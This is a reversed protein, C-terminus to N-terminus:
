KLKEFEIKLLKTVKESHFEKEELKAVKIIETATGTVFIEESRKLHSLKFNGVVLKIKKKKLIKIVIQRTIGNLVSHTKSTYVINNKVWFINCATTEAINNNTDLMLSDDYGKESSVIKEIISAQYSGSSKAKIPFYSNNSKKYKAVCLSIEDKNFLLEWNWIAIFIQSKCSKTDPSMSNSDRFVIPRIYGDKISNIKILKNIIKALENKTLTLKLKMLNCSIILRDLHENLYFPKQSYVRIGEFVAGSFHLSHNLLPVKAKKSDVFKNNLFFKGKLQSFDM